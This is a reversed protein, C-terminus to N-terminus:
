LRFIRLLSRAEELNTVEKDDILSKKTALEECYEAMLESAYEHDDESVSNYWEELEEPTANMLFFLNARDYENM